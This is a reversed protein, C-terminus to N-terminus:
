ESIWQNQHPSKRAIFHIMQGKSRVLPDVSARIEADITRNRHLVPVENVERYDDDSLIRVGAWSFRDFGVSGLLQEVEIPAFAQSIANNNNVYQRSLILRNIAAKDDALRELKGFINPVLLSLYGGPKILETLAELERRPQRLYQIVGHSLLLDFSEPGYSQQAEYSGGQIVRAAGDLKHRAKELYLPDPEALVLEHGIGKNALWLLDSGEGGGVDLVRRPQKLFNGLSQKLHARTVEYRVAGRMTEGHSDFQETQERGWTNGPRSEM